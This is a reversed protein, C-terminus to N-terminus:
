CNSEALAKLEFPTQGVKVGKNEEWCLEKLGFIRVAEVIASAFNM